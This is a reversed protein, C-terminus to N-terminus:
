SGYSRGSKGLKWELYVDRDGAPSCIRAGGLDIKAAYTGPVLLIITVRVKELMGLIATSGGVHM